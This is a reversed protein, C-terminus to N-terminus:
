KVASDQKLGESSAGREKRGEEGESARERVREKYSCDSFLCLFFHCSGNTGKGKFPGIM